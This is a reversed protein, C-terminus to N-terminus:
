TVQGENNLLTDDIRIPVGRFMPIMMGDIEKYTMGAGDVRRIREIDLYEAVTRNMYIRRRSSMYPFRHLAQTLLYTLTSPSNAGTFPTMGGMARDSLSNTDINCIRVVSRWDTLCIGAHIRFRDRYVEMLTKNGGDEGEAIQLDFPEHSVAGQTEGEARKPYLFSVMDEAWDIIWISANNTTGMQGAYAGNIINQKRTGTLSNYRVSFGDIRDPDVTRNGMWVDSCFDQGMAEIFRKSEQARAEKKANGFSKLVLADHEAWAERTMTAEENNVVVSKSTQVGKNARRIYTTPLGATVGVTRTDTKNTPVWPADQLLPMKKNLIEAVAILGAQDPSIRKQLDALNLGNM